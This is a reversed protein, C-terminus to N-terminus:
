IGHRNRRIQKWQLRVYTFGELRFLCSYLLYTGIGAAIQLIFCLPLSLPLFSVLKISIFLTANALINPTLDKLQGIYGYSILKRTDM